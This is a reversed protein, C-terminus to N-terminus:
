HSRTGVEKAPWLTAFVLAVVGGIPAYFFAGTDLIFYSSFAGVLAGVVFAFTCRQVTSDRLRPVKTLVACYIVGGILAPVTIFVYSMPITFFMTTFVFSNLSEWRPFHFGDRYQQPAITALIGTVPPIMAVILLTTRLQWSWRNLDAGELL